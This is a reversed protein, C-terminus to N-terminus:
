GVEEAVLQPEGATEELAPLPPVGGLNIVGTVRQKLLTVGDTQRSSGAEFLSDGTAVDLVHSVAIGVQRNGERCVVVVIKAEPDGEGATLISAADEVPIYPGGGNQLRFILIVSNTQAFTDPRQQLLSSRAQISHAAGEDKKIVSGKSANEQQLNRSRRSRGNHWRMTRWCVQCSDCFEYDDGNSQLHPFRSAIELGPAQALRCTCAM